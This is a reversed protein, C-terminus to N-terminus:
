AATLQVFVVRVGQLSKANEKEEGTADSEEVMHRVSIQAVKHVREVGKLGVGNGVVMGSVAILVAEQVRPAAQCLVVSEVVMPLVSIREEMYVRPVYAAAMSSAASAEVMHKVCHPAEKLVKQVVKFPAVSEVVMHRAFCLAEKHERLADMTSVVADVGMLSACVLRGKLVGPAAM